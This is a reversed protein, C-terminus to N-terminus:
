AHSPTDAPASRLRQKKFRAGVSTQTVVSVKVPVKYPALRERCFSRVIKRITGANASPALVVDACVVQGTIASPEGYVLCDKIEPMQLLVAEIEAPLVKEGGVNILEKRRGVIRLFGDATTEVLDGTRFWGDDTFSDMQYNLYGLIQTRSRLWLEGEVIRHEINPDDLRLLTSDSSKSTTQSIGTESTGFTQIFKVRPFAARLRGLLAEPMPETGYTIIRLSSLDHRRWAESVLILNLFTPSTPLVVVAHRAILACVEDPDRATPIVMTAGTALATFLTNLGGIHDFMLFVMLTLNRARKERYTELLRDLDHLMAKPAGTSGCPFLVLGARNEARLRALLPHAIEGNSEHTTLHPAGGPRAIWGVNALVLRMELEDAVATTLPVIVNRNELLALFLAIADFSYDSLIAVAAGRLVGVAALRSAWERKAQQLQAYRWSGGPAHM